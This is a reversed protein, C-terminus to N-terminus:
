VHKKEVGISALLKSEIRNMSALISDVKQGINYNTAYQDNIAEWQDSDSEKIKQWEEIPLPSSSKFKEIINELVMIREHLTKLTVLQM